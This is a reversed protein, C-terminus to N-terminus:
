LPPFLPHLSYSFIIISIFINSHNLHIEPGSLKGVPFEFFGIVLIGLAAVIFASLWKKSHALGYWWLRKDIHPILTTPNSHPLVRPKSTTIITTVAPLLKV